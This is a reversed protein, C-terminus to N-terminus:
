ISKTSLTTYLKESLTLLHENGTRICLDNLYKWSKVLNLVQETDENIKFLNQSQYEYRISYQKTFYIKRELFPGPSHAIFSYPKVDNDFANFIDQPVYKIYRNIGLYDKDVLDIISAQEWWAHNIYETLTWAKELFEKVLNNNKVIIVGTNINNLDKSLYIYKEPEIFSWLDIDHRLIVADSDIWFTYYNPKSNIEKLLYEIKAWPAPRSYDEPIKYIQYEYGYYGCYNKIIPININALEEFRKNYATIIKFM